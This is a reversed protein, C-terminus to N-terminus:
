SIHLNAIMMENMMQDDDDNGHGSLTSLKNGPLLISRLTKLTGLFPFHVDVHVRSVHLEQWILWNEHLNESTGAKDRQVCTHM